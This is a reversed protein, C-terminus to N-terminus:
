PRAKRRYLRNSWHGPLARISRTTSFPFHISSRRGFPSAIHRRPVSSQQPYHNVSQQLQFRLVASTVTVIDPEVERYTDDLRAVDHLSEGGVTVGGHGRRILRPAAM